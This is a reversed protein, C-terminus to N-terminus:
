NYDKGRQFYWSLFICAAALGAMAALAQGWPTEGAATAFPVPAMSRIYYNVTAFKIGTGFNAVFTEWLLAYLLGVMLSYKRFFVGFFMFLAGWAAIAVFMLGIYQGLEFLFDSTKEYSTHTAIIAFNLLLPILFLVLVSAVFGIYKYAVLEITSVPRSTLYTLTKNEEEEAFLAAGFLMCAYLIIFQLYVQMTITVFLDLGKIGSGDYSYAWYGPIVLLILSLGFFVLTKRDYLVNKVSMELLARGKTPMYKVMDRLKAVPDVGSGGQQGIGPGQQGERQGSDAARQGGDM